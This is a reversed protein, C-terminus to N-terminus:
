TSSSVWEGAILRQQPAFEGKYSMKRCSEIWYGLYLWTLGLRRAHAIQWLIAYVGLSRRPHDPDFYTYVASLGDSMRDSVAAALLEGELRFEFFDTETWSSTLFDRFQAPTPDDMGGDPHRHLLYRAYLDFHEGEDPATRRTVTLDQNSRWVRRQQRRPRFAGILVRVPICAQCDSCHPRYLHDGSRRFGHRALLAYLENSKPLAPDIFATTVDYGPLYSCARPPTLLLMVRQSATPANM